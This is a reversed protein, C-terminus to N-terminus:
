ETPRSLIPLVIFVCRTIGRYSLQRDSDLLSNEQLVERLAKWSEDKSEILDTQVLRAARTVTDQAEPNVTFEWTWYPESRVCRPYCSILLTASLEPSGIGIKEGVYELVDRLSIVERALTYGREREHVLVSRVAGEVLAASKNTEHESYLTIGQARVYM